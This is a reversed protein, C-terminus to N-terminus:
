QPIGTQKLYNRLLKLDTQAAQTAEPAPYKRANLGISEISLYGRYGGAHLQPLIATYDLLGRDLRGFNWEGNAGIYGNKIHTHYIRDGLRTIVQAPDAGSFRLNTLDATVGICDAPALEILRETGALTDTIQRMTTHFALKVGADRAMGALEHLAQALCNWQHPEALRATPRGPDLQLLRTGFLPALGIFTQAVRLEEALLAPDTFTNHLSLAAVALGCGRIQAAVTEADRRALAHDLHPAACLLETAPYGIRATAAMAEALPLAALTESFLAATM